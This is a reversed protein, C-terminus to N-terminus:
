RGVANPSEHPRCTTRSVNVTSQLERQAVPMFSAKKNVVISLRTEHEAVSDASVLAGQAVVKVVTASLHDRRRGAVNGLPEDVLEDDVPM